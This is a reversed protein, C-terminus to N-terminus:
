NGMENDKIGYERYLRKRAQEDSAALKVDEMRNDSILREM